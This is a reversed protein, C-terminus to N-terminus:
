YINQSGGGKNLTCDSIDGKRKIVGEGGMGAGGGGCKEGQGENYGCQAGTYLSWDVVKELKYIIDLIIKM